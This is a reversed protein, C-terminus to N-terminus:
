KRAAAMDREDETDQVEQELVEVMDKDETVDSNIKQEILDNLEESRKLRKREMNVTYKLSYARAELLIVNHLLTHCILLCRSTLM